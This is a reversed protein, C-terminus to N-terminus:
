GLVAGYFKLFFYLVGHVVRFMKTLDLEWLKQHGKHVYQMIVVKRSKNVATDHQIIEESLM